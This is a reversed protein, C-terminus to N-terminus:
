CGVSASAIARHARIEANPGDPHRKFTRLLEPAAGNIARARDVDGVVSAGHADRMVARMWGTAFRRLDKSADDDNREQPMTAAHQM